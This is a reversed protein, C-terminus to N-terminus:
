AAAEAAVLAEPVAVVEGSDMRRVQARVLRSMMKLDRERLRMAADVWLEVIGELEERTVPHILHRARLVGQLGNRRKANRAIWNRVATEGQGDTAVVDVVGLKHLEAATMIKGSLVLEEAARLGVRRALLSCAGMGPFLNFLIEPLGLQASEEAIIVDSALAAEFGGGLADGQVLSITTLTSSRFNQMRRYMNDICLKAYSGIAHRDQTKILMSFLALDGGMNFVRPIRSALVYQNAQYSHGDIEVRGCARAFAEDHSAIDKLLGLSFCPAGQKPNFYGWVTGTAPEFQTEYQSNARGYPICLGVADRLNSM